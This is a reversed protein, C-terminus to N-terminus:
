AAVRELSKLLATVRVRGTLLDQMLGTKITQLKKRKQKEICINNDAMDFIQSIRLQENIEPMAIPAIALQEQTLHAISTQSTFNLFVGKMIAYKMFRPFLSPIYQKNIPRLRHIAKQFYCSELEDRWLATRGIECGECVLIDGIRLDYKKREPETFDMELVDSLDVNDWQVNKNGLYPFPSKGEIAKKSLMKGLQMEFIEGIKKVEWEAPIRGLPSDEFQHTTETRINGQEDIGKTLLDQMLGTKIRQQKAILAETQEIARDVTALIDAILTQEPIPPLNIKIQSLFPSRIEKITSGQSNAKLYPKLEQLKYYLFINFLKRNCVIGTIGQKTALSVDAIGVEGITAGTSLIVTGKPWLKASCSSLGKKTLTTNTAKIRAKIDNIIVWPIEGGFNDKIATNPTGGDGIDSILEILKYKGWDEM